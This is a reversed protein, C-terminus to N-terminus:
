SASSITYGTLFQRDTQRDTQRTRETERHTNTYAHTHTHTHTHTNVVTADFHHQWWALSLLYVIDAHQWSLMM